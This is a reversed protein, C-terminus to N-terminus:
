YRRLQQLFIIIKHFFSLRFNTVRGVLRDPSFPFDDHAAVLPRTIIRKGIENFRAGDIKWIYHCILIEGNWYVIIDLMKLDEVEVPEFEITDGIQILPRMSGSVVKAQLHGKENLEHKLKQFATQDFKM